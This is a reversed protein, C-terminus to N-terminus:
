ELILSSTQWLDVYQPWFLLASMKWIVNGFCFILVFIKTALDHVSQHCPNLKSHTIWIVLIWIGYLLTWTALMPGVQTRDAGPPGWTPGMFRAIPSTAYRLSAPMPSFHYGQSVACIATIGRWSMVLWSQHSSVYCLFHDQCDDWSKKLLFTKDYDKVHQMPKLFNSFISASELVNICKSTLM